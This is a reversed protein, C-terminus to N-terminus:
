LYVSLEKLWDFRVMLSSQRCNIVADQLSGGSSKGNSFFYTKNIAVSVYGPYKYARIYVSVCNIRRICYRLYNKTHTKKANSKQRNQTTM